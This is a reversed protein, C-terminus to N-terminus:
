GAAITRAAGALDRAQFDPAPGVDPRATEDRAIWATQLGARKAGLADWWHATVLVVEAARRGTAEVGSAYVRPDPKFAEVADTGIVPSLELGAAALLTRATGGSSNTLVGVGVKSDLMTAIAERAEPFPAMRRTGDIVAGLADEAGIAALRRAAAARLLEAFDRYSGTITEVAGLLVADGLVAEVFRQRDNGSPLADAIPSPDLLTGNLDFLAHAPPMPSTQPVGAARPRPSSGLSRRRSASWCVLNSVVLPVCFSLGVKVWTIATADGGIIVDAQNIVTLVIGVVMAIRLTRRLYERRLSIRLAGAGGHSWARGTAM